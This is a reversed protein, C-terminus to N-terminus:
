LSYAIKLLQERSLSAAGDIAYWIGHNVWAAQNQGWIYITLGQGEVAVVNKGQGPIANDRLSSSDWTTTRKTIRLETPASPSRFAMVAQGNRADVPGELEYSSPLYGPLTLSFGAKSSASHLALKPYNQLWIYGAMITVAAAVAAYRHLSPIVTPKIHRRDIALKAMARHHTEAHAPMHRRETHASPASKAVAVTPTAVPQGTTELPQSTAQAHFRAIAQSRVAPKSEAIAPKATTTTPRMRRNPIIQAAPTGERLNIVGGKALGTRAPVPHSGVTPNHRIGVDSLSTTSTTPLAEGCAHCYHRGAIRVPKGTQNCKDCKEAM